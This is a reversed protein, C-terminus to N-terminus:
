YTYDYWQNGVQYPEGGGIYTPAPALGGISGSSSVTGPYVGSPGDYIPQGNSGIWPAPAGWDAGSYTTPTGGYGTTPYSPVNPYALTRLPDMQYSNNAMGPRSNYAMINNRNIAQTNLDRQEQIYDKMWQPQYDPNSYALVNKTPITLLQNIQGQAQLEAAQNGLGLRTLADNKAMQMQANTTFPLARDRYALENLAQVEAASLSNAAINERSMLDNWSLAEQTALRNAENVDQSTLANQRNIYDAVIGRTDRGWNYALTNQSEIDRARLMEQQMRAAEALSVNQQRAIEELQNQQQEWALTAAREAEKNKWQLDAITTGAQEALDQRVREEQLARASGFYGPANQARVQTLNKQAQEQMGPLIAGEFYARVDKPNYSIPISRRTFASDPSFSTIPKYRGYSPAGGTVSDPLERYTPNVRQASRLGTTRVPNFTKYSPVTYAGVSWDYGMKAPDLTTYKAGSSLRSNLLSKQEPSLTDYEYTSIPTSSASKAM